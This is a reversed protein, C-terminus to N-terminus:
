EMKQFCALEGPVEPKTQYKVGEVKGDAGIVFQVKVAKDTIWSSPGTTQHAWWYEGNVHHLTAALVLYGKASVPPALYLLYKGDADRHQSAPGDRATPQSSKADRIARTSAQIRRYAPYEYIDEYAAMLLGLNDILQWCIVNQAVSYANTMTVGAWGGLEDGRLLDDMTPPSTVMNAKFVAIADSNHVIERGRYVQAYLGLGYAQPGTFRWKPEVLMKPARLAAVASKSLAATLNSPKM